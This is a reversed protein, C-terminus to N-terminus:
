LSKFLEARLAANHIDNAHRSAARWALYTKSRHDVLEQLENTWFWGNDPPRPPKVKRGVSDDMCSHLISTFKIALSDIDIPPSTMEHPYVHDSQSYMYINIAYKTYAILESKLSATRETFLAKFLSRSAPENMRALKWILRPHQVPVASSRPLFFTYRYLYIIQVLVQRIQTRNM